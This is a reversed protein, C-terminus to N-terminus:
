RPDNPMNQAVKSTAIFRFDKTAFAMRQAAAIMADATTSAGKTSVAIRKGARATQERKTLRDLGGRVVEDWPYASRMRPRMM